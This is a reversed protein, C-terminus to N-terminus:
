QAAEELKARVMKELWTSFSRGDDFAMKQGRKLIAPDISINTRIKTVKKKPAGRSGKTQTTHKASM